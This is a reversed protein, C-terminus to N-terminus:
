PQGARPKAVRHLIAGTERELWPCLLLIFVPLLVFLGIAGAVITDTAGPLAKVALLLPYHLLYSRFLM